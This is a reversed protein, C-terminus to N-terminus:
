IKIHRKLINAYHYKKDCNDCQYLDSKEHVTKIHAKLNAKLSFVKDCIKCKHLEKVAHVSQTHNKLNIEQPFKKGCLKCEFIKIKLHVGNKHRVLKQNTSFLKGCVDCKILKMREHVANIHVRLNESQIGSNNIKKDQTDLVEYDSLNLPLLENPIPLNVLQFNKKNRIELINIKIFCENPNVDLNAIKIKEQYNNFIKENKSADFEDQNIDLQSHFILFHLDLNEFEKDCIHCLHKAPIQCKSDITECNENSHEILDEKIDIENFLDESNECIFQNTAESESFCDLLNEM